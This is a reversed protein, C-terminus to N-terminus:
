PFYTIRVYGNGDHGTQTGGTPNPMPENGALMEGDSFIYGSYHDPQGTHAGAETVADCGTYGSVFSSGGSGSSNPKVFSLGERAGYYGGGGGGTGDNNSGTGFIGNGGFGFAKGTTQTGPTSSTATPAGKGILAGGAGGGGSYYQDSAGNGSWGGGGGGAAVMIRSILSATDNWTGSVLRIDTSGGGPFGHEGSDASESSDFAGAGGGNFSVAYLSTTGINSATFTSGAEGIYMYIKEGRDLPILGTVYAGKGGLSIGKATSTTGGGSAGWLEVKYTGTYPVTFTQYDGTYEYAYSTELPKDVLNNKSGHIVLGDLKNKGELFISIVGKDNISVELLKYNENSIGIESEMNDVTITSVDYEEVSANKQEIAKIIQTAGVKFANVRSSEILNSVIPVAIAVVVVLIIITALLEILTFGNGKM